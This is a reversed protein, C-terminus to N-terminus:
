RWFVCSMSYKMMKKPTPFIQLLESPLSKLDDVVNKPPRFSVKRQSKPCIQLCELNLQKAPTARLRFFIVRFCRHKPPTKAGPHPLVLPPVHTKRLRKKPLSTPLVVDLFIGLTSLPLNRDTKMPKLCVAAHKKPFTRPPPTYYLIM